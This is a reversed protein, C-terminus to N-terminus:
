GFQVCPVLCNPPENWNASVIMGLPYSLSAITGSGSATKITRIWKSWGFRGARHLAGPYTSAEHVVLVELPDGDPARTSPVFGWDFPYSMGLRLGRSATFVGLEIDYELKVLSTSWLM